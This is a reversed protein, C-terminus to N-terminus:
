SRAGRQAPPLLHPQHFSHFRAISPMVLWVTNGNFSAVNRPAKTAHPATSYKSSTTIRVSTHPLGTAPYGLRIATTSNRPLACSIVSPTIPSYRPRTNLSVFRRGNYITSRNLRAPSHPLNPAPEIYRPRLRRLAARSPSTGARGRVRDPLAARSRPDGLRSNDDLEPPSFDPFLRVVNGGNDFCDRMGTDLFTECPLNEALIVDHSETEIHVYRISPARIQRVADGDILVKVPILVGEAFIAHDPSLRLDRQPVGPAFADARIRVPWVSKPNPHRRCDVRRHGVWTIRRAAGTITLVEDGPCLREAAVDGNPTRIRTGAAFCAVDTIQTGGSGDPLVAFNNLLSTPLNITAVTSGSSAVALMGTTADYSATATSPDLDTLDFWDGTHFDNVTDGNLDAAAGQMESNSAGAAITDAGLGPQILNDYPSGQIFEGQDTGQILYQQNPDLRFIIISAPDTGKWYDVDHIHITDNDGNDFVPLLGGSTLTGVVTTVHHGGGDLWAMKVIDGPQVLTSWNQVPDVQDAGSYVVRWFGGGQEDSFVDNQPFGAGADGAVADAIFGCDNNNYTGGYAEDLRIASQVIDNPTVHGSYITPSVVSPDATQVTYSAYATTSGSSTIPVTYSVLPGIENGGLFDIDNLQSASIDTDNPVSWQSIQKDDLNWYSFDDRALDAASSFNLRYNTWAAPITGFAQELLATASLTGGPAVVAPVPMTSLELAPAVPDYTVVTPAGPLAPTQISFDAAGGGDPDNVSISGVATGDELLTLIGDGYSVGNAALTAFELRAGAVAVKVPANFDALDDIVLTASGDALDFLARPVLWRRLM